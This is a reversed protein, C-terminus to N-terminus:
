RYATMRLAKSLFANILNISSVSNHLINVKITMSSMKHQKSYWRNAWISNYNATTSNVIHCMQKTKGTTNSVNYLKNWLIQGALSGESNQAPNLNRLKSCYPKLHLGSSFNLTRTFFGKFYGTLIISYGLLFQKM